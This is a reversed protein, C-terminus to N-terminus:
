KLEPLKFRKDDKFRSYESFICGCYKQKYLEHKRAAEHTQKFGPRLDSYHFECNFEKAIAHGAECILEHQQYPSILLTTTFARFNHKAAFRAAEKLRMCYCYYCREENFKGNLENLFFDLGYDLNGYNAKIKLNECLSAFSLLRQRYELYPHINPNFWYSEVPEDGLSDRLIDISGGLCPGCCSHILVSM